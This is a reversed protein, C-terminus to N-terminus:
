GLGPHAGCTMRIGHRRGGATGDGMVCVGSSWEDEPRRNRTAFCRRRSACVGECRRGQQSNRQIRVASHRLGLDESTNNFKTRGVLLLAVGAAVSARRRPPEHEGGVVAGEHERPSAGRLLRLGVSVVAHRWRNCSGFMSLWM